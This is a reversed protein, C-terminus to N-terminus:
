RRRRRGAQSAAAVVAALGLSAPEPVEVGFHYTAAGVIPDAQNLGAYATIEFDVEYLGARTFGWNYHSHGGEITYAADTATVGGDATSMWVVPAGFQDNQWLSFDGGAPGRVAKLAVKIWAQPTSAPVRPDGPNWPALTGPAVEESGLGLFNVQPNQAQPLVWFPQNATAGTFAFAPPVTALTVRAAPNVNLLADHPAYEGSEAHVHPDWAGADDLALGVDVHEQDILVASPSLPAASADGTAVALAIAVAAEFSRGM